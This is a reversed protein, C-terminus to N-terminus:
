LSFIIKLHQLLTIVKPYPFVLFGLPRITPIKKRLFDYQV